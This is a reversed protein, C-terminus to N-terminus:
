HPIKPCLILKTSSSINNRYPQVTVYKKRIIYKSNIRTKEYGFGVINTLNQIM